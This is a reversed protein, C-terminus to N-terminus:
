ESKRPKKDTSSGLGFFDLIFALTIDQPSQKDRVNEILNQIGIPILTNGAEKGLTTPDGKFDKGSLGYYGARVVPASKNMLFRTTMNLPDSFPSTRGAPANDAYSKRVAMKKDGASAVWAGMRTLYTAVSSLGGTFDFNVATGPVQIKGFKSSRPDPNSLGAFSALAITTGIWTMAKTYEKAVLSTAANRNKGALARIPQATAMDIRSKLFRPSFIWKALRDGGNELWGLDGRGTATNVWKALTDLEDRTIKVGSDELLDVYTGFAEMRMTNLFATYTRESFEIWQKAGPVKALINAIFDEEKPLLDGGTLALKGSIAENYRPHQTIEWMAKDYGKTSISKFMNKFALGATKPQSAMMVFGQRFPASMDGSSLISRTTGLTNEFHTFAKQAWNKQNWDAEREVKNLIQRAEALKRDQAFRVKRLDASEMANVGREMYEEGFKRGTNLQKSEDVVAEKIARHITVNDVADGVVDLIKNAIEAASELGNDLHYRAMTKLSNWEETTIRRGAVAGRQKSNGVTKKGSSKPGARWAEVAKDYDAKTTKRTYNIRAKARAPDRIVSDSLKAQRAVEAEELKSVQKKLEDVEKLVAEYEPTPKVGGSSKYYRYRLVNTDDSNAIELQRARGSRGWESGAIDSAELISKTDDDISSILGELRIMENADQSDAAKLAQTVLEERESAKKHFTKLMAAQEADSATRKKSIISRATAIGDIKDSEKDLQSFPKSTKVYQNIDLDARIKATEAQTIGQGEKSVVTKAVQPKIQPAEPPKPTDVQTSINVPAKVKVSDADFIVGDVVEGGEIRAIGDFGKEKLKGHVVDWQGRSKATLISTVEDPNFGVGRLSEGWNSVEFLNSNTELDIREFGKYKPASLNPGFGLCRL